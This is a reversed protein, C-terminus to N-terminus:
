KGGLGSPVEDDLIQGDDDYRIDFAEPEEEKPAPAPAAKKVKAKKVKAKKVKAKKSPKKAKKPAASAIKERKAKRKTPAAESEERAAVAEDSDIPGAEDEVEDEEEIDDAPPAMEDLMPSFGAILEEEHSSRLKKRSRLKLTFKELTKGTAGDRLRLKLLYRKKGKRKLTGTVVADVGLKAAVKAVHSPKLKQARLRKAAKRYRKGSVVDYREGLLDEIALRLSVSSKGKIMVAVSAPEPMDSDAM